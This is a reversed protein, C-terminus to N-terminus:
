WTICFVKAQFALAGHKPWRRKGAEKEGSEGGCELQVQSRVMESSMGAEGTGECAAMERWLRGAASASLELREEM